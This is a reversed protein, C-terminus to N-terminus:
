RNGQEVNVREIKKGAPLFLGSCNFLHVPSRLHFKRPHPLSKKTGLRIHEGSRRSWSRRSQKPRRGFPKSCYFTSCYVAPPGQRGAHAAVKRGWGYTSM